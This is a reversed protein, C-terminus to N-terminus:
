VTASMHQAGQASGGHGEAKRSGLGPDGQLELSLQQSQSLTLCVWHQVLIVAMGWVEMGEDSKRTFRPLGTVLCVQLGPLHPWLSAARAPLM